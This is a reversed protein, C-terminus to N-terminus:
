GGLRTLAENARTPNAMLGAAQRYDSVVQQIDKKLLEGSMARYFYAAGYGADVNIAIDFKKYATENDGMELHLIGNNVHLRANYPHYKAAKEYWKKAEEFKNRKHFFWAKGIMADMDISDIRLANDYYKLAIPKDYHDFHTGLKRYADIHDVDEEVTTQFAKVARATDGMQEFNLGAIYFAEPHLPKQQLVLATTALSTEHQRLIMQMEGLKLLTNIQTSDRNIVKELTEIATKSQNSDFYADSLLHYYGLNNSDLQIATQLDAIAATYEESGYFLEGRAAYLLANNPDEEIKESIKAIEPTGQVVVDEGQQEKETTSNSTCATMLVVFFLLLYVTLSKQVQSDRTPLAPFCDPSKKEKQGGGVYESCRRGAFYNTQFRSRIKKAKSFAKIYSKM